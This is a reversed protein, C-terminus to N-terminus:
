FGLVYAMAFEQHTFVSLPVKDKSFDRKFDIMIYYDAKALYGTISMVDDPDNVSAANYPTMDLRDIMSQLKKALDKEEEDRQGCSLFVISKHM